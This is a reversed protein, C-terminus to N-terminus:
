REKWLDEAEKNLGLKKLTEPWPKGSKRDWGMHKYYEDLMHSWGPKIDKGKAPGDVPVSSYLISPAEVALSVGHRLNFARMLNVERDAAAVADEFTMKWGTAANVINLLLTFDPGARMNCLGLLDIFQRRPKFKAVMLAVQDTSYPDTFAPLKFEAPIAGMIPGTEITGQSSTAYDLEETWRARHDHGRPAHGKQIYAAYKLAEGGIQEAARKIGEALINGFGERHAVKHLMRRVAEVNGWKMELGGTDEKGIIGREYIDVVFSMLWGAENVDFGLKDVENSLVFVGPIDYNMLNPGLESWCEYEPEEGVYGAYPGDKVTMIHLHHTPCAWCPSPKIEFSKSKRYNEGLFAEHNPFLNTNMNKVPLYGISLAGPFSMSTGWNFSNQGAPTSVINDNMAQALEALKEADFVPASGKGRAVAIAKLRKSGMVAGTGNHAAAHGKDGIVGSFKILNEGAPGICFVSMGRENFGLEKKITDETEWTDKGLLHRADKLEAKGDHIYLYVWHDAAGQVIVGVLGNFRLYAGFYGNAQTATGGNTLPGKTVLSFTGTGSVRTGGIPGTAFIMRNEPDAWEVGPPVEDYLIRAGFGTGGVYKKVVSQELTKTTIRKTSLNVRVFKGEYAPAKEPAM